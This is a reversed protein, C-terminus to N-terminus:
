LLMAKVELYEEFGYKGLETAPSSTGALPAMPNFEGGNVEVQGARLQGCASQVGPGRGSVRQLAM